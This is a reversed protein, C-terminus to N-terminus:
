GRKKRRRKSLTQEKRELVLLEANALLIETLAEKFNRGTDVRKQIQEAWEAPIWETRKRREEMFTLQWVPHGDGEACHCTPKGCRRQILTLSGPLADAPIVLRELLVHRRQRLSAGKM